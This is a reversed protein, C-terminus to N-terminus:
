LHKYYLRDVILDVVKEAEQMLEEDAHQKSVESYIEGDSMENIPCWRPIVSIDKIINDYGKPSENHSCYEFNEGHGYHNKRCPCDCCDTVDVILKM